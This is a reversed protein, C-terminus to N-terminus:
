SRFPMNLEYGRRRLDMRVLNSVASSPSMGQAQLAQLQEQMTDWIWLHAINEQGSYLYDTLVFPDARSPQDLSSAPELLNSLEVDHMQETSFSPNRRLVGSEEADLDQGSSTPLIFHSIENGSNVLAGEGMDKRKTIAAMMALQLFLIVLDILLLYIKSTPGLQGVFDLLLSGHLYGRTAEGASPASSFIHVFLCIVNTGVVGSIYPQSPAQPVGAEKPMLHIVQVMSRMALRWISNDLFYVTAIEASTLLDLNRILDDMYANRQVTAAARRDRWIQWTEEEGDSSGPASELRAAQTSSPGAFNPDSSM